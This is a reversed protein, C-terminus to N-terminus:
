YAHRDGPESLENSTRAREVEQKRAGRCLSPKPCWDGVGRTGRGRQRCAHGFGLVIPFWRRIRAQLDDGWCWSGRTAAPHTRQVTKHPCDREWASRSVRPAARLRGRNRHTVVRVAAGPSVRVPQRGLAGAKARMHPFAPTKCRGSYRTPLHQMPRAAQTLIPRTLRPSLGSRTHMCMGPSVHQRVCGRNAGMICAPANFQAPRHMFAAPYKRARAM